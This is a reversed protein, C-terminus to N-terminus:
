LVLRVQPKEKEERQRIKEAIKLQKRSEQYHGIAHLAVAYRRHDISAL